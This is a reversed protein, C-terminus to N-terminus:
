SEVKLLNRYIIESEELSLRRLYKEPSRDCELIKYVFEDGPYPREVRLLEVVSWDILHNVGSLKLIRVDVGDVVSRADSWFEKKLFSLDESTFRVRDELIRM